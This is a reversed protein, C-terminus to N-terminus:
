KYCVAVGIHRYVGAADSTITGDGARYLNGWDRASYYLLYRDGDDLVRPMGAYRGDFDNPNRTAPFAPTDVHHTWNLGDDSTSCFIETVGGGIHAGYWMAYGTEHKLVSPYVVRQQRGTATLMPQEDRTWAIGDASEFRYINGALAGFEEAPDPKSCMWMRYIDGVRIVTPCCLSVRCWDQDTTMASLAPQTPRQWELQHLPVAM